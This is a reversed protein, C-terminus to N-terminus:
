YFYVLADYNRISWPVKRHYSISWLLRAYRVITQFGVKFAGANICLKDKFKIRPFCTSLSRAASWLFSSGVAEGLKQCRCVDPRIFHLRKGHVSASALTMHWVRCWAAGPLLGLDLLTIWLWLVKFRFSM